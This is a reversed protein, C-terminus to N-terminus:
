GHLNSIDDPQKLFVAPQENACPATMALVFM